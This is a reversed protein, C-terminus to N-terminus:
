DAPWLNRRPFSSGYASRLRGVLRSMDSSFRFGTWVGSNTLLVWCDGDPFKEILAHTSSLTGTRIWKGSKDVEVWGRSMNETESYETLLGVSKKTLVDKVGEEGDIAAVLRALDSASAVWGGAGMLANVNSGGYVRTVMKGSGTFEEVLEDDPAYYKVERPHRETYYNTAPRFHYAGAPELVHKTVYDWYSMGSVKEIVLSLLMYGFNSYRRGSGPTFALRRGLVIGTLERNDPAGKLRKAKIIEVTNFMPDGGGRGFGGQHRLLHDVTIDAVRPDAVRDTFDRVDLIGPGRAPSEGAVSDGGTSDTAAPADASRGKGVVGQLGFVRSDLSLKGEEVLKMVAVATVLKSASAMRMISTADMREGTEADSYGYGKAFLLSDHRVVAVSMGKLHWKQMFTEIAADMGALSATASSGNSITDSWRIAGAAAEEGPAEGRGSRNVFYVIHIIVFVAVAFAMIYLTGKRIESRRM